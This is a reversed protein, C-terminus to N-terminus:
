HQLEAPAVVSVEVPISGANEFRFTVPFKSQAALPEHLGILMLHLAGPEFKVTSGAAIDVTATQRMHMMGNEQATSHIEVRDAVPTDAGLLKDTQLAKLEVYVAAVTAGPPTAPSRASSIEIGPATGPGCASVVIFLAFLLKRRM